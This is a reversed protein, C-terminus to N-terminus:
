PRFRTFQAKTEELHPSKTCNKGFFEKTPNLAGVGEITVFHHFKAGLFRELHRMFITVEFPMQYALRNKKLHAKVWLM